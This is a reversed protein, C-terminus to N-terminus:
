SMARRVARQQDCACSALFSRTFREVTCRHSIPARFIGPIASSKSEGYSILQERAMSPTLARIEQWRGCQDCTCDGGGLIDLMSVFQGPRFLPERPENKEHLKSKM